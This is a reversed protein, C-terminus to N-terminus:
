QSARGVPSQDIDPAARTQGTDRHSRTAQQTTAEPSRTRTGSVRTESQPNGSQAAQGNPHSPAPGVVQFIPDMGSKPGSMACGAFLPLSVTAAVIVLIGQFRTM